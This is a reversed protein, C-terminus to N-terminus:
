NEKGARTHLREYIIIVHRGTFLSVASPLIVATMRLPHAPTGSVAQALRLDEANVHSEPEGDQTRCQGPCGM